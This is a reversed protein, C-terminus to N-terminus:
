DFPDANLIDWVQDAEFGRSIAHHAIKYNRKRQDKEKLKKGYNDIVKQISKRYDNEDISSLAKKICYDSIKRAKLEMKIKVRGWQKIRFKGGAYAVAFREENIFGETVLQSVALEVEKKHLGESYLKDRVEQQSREQYACYRKIKELIKSEM